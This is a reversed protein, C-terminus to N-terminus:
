AFIELLLREYRSKITRIWESEDILDLVHITLTGSSADFNAWLTGPTSTIICALAALGYPDRLELPIDIFGSKREREQDGLVIRAVAINSRVIDALVLASLRIMATPRRMRAIPLELLTLSWGGIIAILSGLLIHGASVTQNLLLWLILLAVSVLPFRMWRTM